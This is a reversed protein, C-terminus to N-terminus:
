RSHFMGSVFVNESYSSDIWWKVGYFDVDDNLSYYFRYQLPINDGNADISIDYSHSLIDYLSEFYRISGNCIGNPFIEFSNDVVSPGKNVYIPISSVGYKNSKSVAVEFEYAVGQTLSSADLVLYNLDSNENTRSNVIQQNTLYGNSESWEFNYSNYSTVNNDNPDDISVILRLNEDDNVITNTAAVSVDLITITSKNTNNYILNEITLMSTATCPDRVNQNNNDYMMMEFAYIYTAHLHTFAETELSVTATASNSSTLVSYSCDQEVNDIYLICKWEYMVNESEDPDYSFTDGDLTFTYYKLSAPTVDSIYKNGSAIQCVLDSFEYTLSHIQNAYCDYDGTCNMEAEFDYESGLTLASKDVILSLDNFDFAYIDEAEIGNVLVGNEYVNWSFEYDLVSENSSNHCDVNFEINVDLLIFSSRYNDNSFSSIGTISLLPVPVNSKTVQFFYSMPVDLYWVYVDLRPSVIEGVQLSDGPITIFKGIYLHGKVYWEFVAFRGGLWLIM